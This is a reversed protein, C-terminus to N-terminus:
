LIGGILREIKYGEAYGNGSQIGYLRNKAEAKELINSRSVQSEFIELLEKKDEWYIVKFYNPVFGVSSNSDFYILSKNKRYCISKIMEAVARHDQHTDDPYHTFILDPNKTLIISELISINDGNEAIKTDEWGLNVYEPISLHNM